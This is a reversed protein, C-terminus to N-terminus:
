PRGPRLRRGSGSAGALPRGGATRGAREPAIRSVHRSRRGDRWGKQQEPQERNGPARSCSASCLVTAFGEDGAHDEVVAVAVANSIAELESDAADRHRVPAVHSTGVPVPTIAQGDGVVGDDEHHLGAAKRSREVLIAQGEEVVDVLRMAGRWSKAKGAGRGRSGKGCRHVEGQGALALGVGEVDQEETSVKARSMM